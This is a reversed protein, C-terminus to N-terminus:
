EKRSINGSCVLSIASIAFFRLPEAANESSYLRNLLVLLAIAGIFWFIGRLVKREVSAKKALYAVGGLCMLGAKLAKPAYPDHDTWAFYGLCLCAAVYLAKRSISIAPDVRDAEPDDNETSM